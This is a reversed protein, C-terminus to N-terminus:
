DCGATNLQADSVPWHSPLWFAKGCLNMKVPESLTGRNVTNVEIKVIIGKESVVMKAEGDNQQITSGPIIRQIRAKCNDLAVSINKLSNQRDDFLIYTLDIDVSLRPMDRVFLNIATGGHLALNSEKAIEPLLRLLLNVQKKYSEGAM